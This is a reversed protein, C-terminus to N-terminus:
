VDKSRAQQRRSRDSLYCFRGSGGWDRGTPGRTPSSIAYGTAKQM